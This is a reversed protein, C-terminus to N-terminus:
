KPYYIFLYIFSLKYQEYITNGSFFPPGKAKNKKEKKCVLSVMSARLFINKVTYYGVKIFKFM